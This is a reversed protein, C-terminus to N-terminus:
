RAARRQAAHGGVNPATAIRFAGSRWSAIVEAVTGACDSIVDINAATLTQHANPGCSGTLVVKAGKSAVLQSSQIGAGSGTMSNRNDVAEFSMDDTEVFLFYACRGFRPDLIANLSPGSSSIAIKM